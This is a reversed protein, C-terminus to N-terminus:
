KLMIKGDIGLDESCERGELKGVLNQICKEYRGNM